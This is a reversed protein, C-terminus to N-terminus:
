EKELEALAIKVDEVTSKFFYAFNVPDRQINHINNDLWLVDNLAKKIKEKDM